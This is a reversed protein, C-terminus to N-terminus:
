VSRDMHEGQIEVIIPLTHAILVNMYSVHDAISIAIGDHMVAARLVDRLLLWNIM